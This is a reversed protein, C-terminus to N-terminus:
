YMSTHRSYAAEQQLRCNERASRDLESRLIRNEAQLAEVEFRAQIDTNTQSSAYQSLELKADKLKLDLEVSLNKYRELHRKLQKVESSESERSSLSSVLSSSSSSSSSSSPSFSPLSQHHSTPDPYMGRALYGRPPQPLESCGNALPMSALSAKSLQQELSTTKRRLDMLEVEKTRLTAELLRVKEMEVLQDPTPRERQQQLQETEPDHSGNPESKASATYLQVQAQLRDNEAKLTRFQQELKEYRSTEEKLHPLLPPSSSSSPTATIVPISPQNVYERVSQMTKLQQYVTKAAPREEKGVLCCLVVPKLPSDGLMSLDSRRRETEPVIQLSTGTSISMRFAETATPDRGISIELLIVGFSYVDVSYDYGVGEIKVEPPMYLDTGPQRSHQAFKHASSIVKAVGLDSIKPVGAHDLLVNKSALDRHVIPQPREHLYRLGSVVGLSLDVVQRFNLRPEQRNRINLSCCLLQQILCTDPGLTLTGNGGDDYVGYFTVINPHKLQFLINLERAFTRLVSKREAESITSEFFIQHLRKVAVATGLWEGMCVTGFSGRGLVQSPFLKVDTIFWSRPVQLSHESISQYESSESQSCYSSFSNREMIFVSTLLEM